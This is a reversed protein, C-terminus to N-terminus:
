YSRGTVTADLTAGSALTTRMQIRLEASAALNIGLYGEFQVTDVTNILTIVKIIGSTASGDYLTIVATYTGGPATTPGSAVTLSELFVGNPGASYITQATTGSANNVTKVGIIAAQLVAPTSSLAM